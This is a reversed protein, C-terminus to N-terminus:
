PYAGLWSHNYLLKVRDGAPWTLISLLVRGAFTSNNEYTSHM